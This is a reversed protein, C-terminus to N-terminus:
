FWPSCSAAGVTGVMGKICVEWVGFFEEGAKKGGMPVPRDSYGRFDDSDGFELLLLALINRRM